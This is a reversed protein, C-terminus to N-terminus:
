KMLDKRSIHPSNELTITIHVDGSPKFGRSCKHLLALTRASDIVDQRDDFNCERGDIVDSLVYIDDNYEM